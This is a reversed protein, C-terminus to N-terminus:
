KMRGYIFVLLTAIISVFFLILLLTVDTMTM